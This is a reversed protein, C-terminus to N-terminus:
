FGDGAPWSTIRDLAQHLAAEAVGANQNRTRNFLVVLGVGDGRLAIYADGGDQGGSHNMAVGSTLPTLSWGAAYHYGTGPFVAANRTRMTAITAPSLVDAHNPLGDVGALFRAMDTASAIWQGAPGAYEQTAGVDPWRGTGMFTTVPPRPDYATVEKPDRQALPTYGLQMATVGAPALVNAQVWPEYGQGTVHEIMLGLVLYGYNTYAHATGPATALAVGRGSRVIARPDTNGSALLAAFIKSDVDRNANWGGTHYLLDRVTIDKLRPDETEGPLLEIGTLLQFPRDDLSLQGAEVLKMIAVATVPKSTSGIRFLHDTAAMRRTLTDAWGYARALVLRGDKTVAVSAGPFGLRTMEGIVASDFSALAAVRTGGGPWVTLDATGAAGGVTATVRVPGPAAATLTAGSMAATAPASVTWTTAPADDLTQGAADKVVVRLQLTDGVLLFSGSRAIVVSAPPGTVTVAVSGERGNASAARITAQGPGVATVVGNAVTAVAANTTSWTLAQGNMVGGTTSRVVATVTTTAGVALSADGASLEVTGVVPAPPPPPETPGGDGGGCAALATLSSLALLVLALPLPRRRM